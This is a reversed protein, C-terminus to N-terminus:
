QPKEIHQGGGGGGWNKLYAVVTATDCYIGVVKDQLFSACRLLELRVM